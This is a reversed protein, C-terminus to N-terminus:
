CFSINVCAFSSKNFETDGFHVIDSLACFGQPPILRILRVDKIELIVIYGIPEAM